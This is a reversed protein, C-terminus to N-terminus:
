KNDKLGEGDIIRQLDSEKVRWKAGVKVAPLKGDKVWSQLTRHTVGIISAVESLSFMKQISM